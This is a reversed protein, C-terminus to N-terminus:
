TSRALSQLRTLRNLPLVFGPSPLSFINLKRGALGCYANHISHMWPQLLRKSSLVFGLLRGAYGFITDTFLRIPIFSIFSTLCPVPPYQVSDEPWMHWMLPYNVLQRLLLFGGLLHIVRIIESVEWNQGTWWLNLVTLTFSGSRIWRQFGKRLPLCM